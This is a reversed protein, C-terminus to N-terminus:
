KGSFAYDIEVKKITMNTSGTNTLRTGLAFTDKMSPNFDIRELSGQLQTIDTGASYSYTFQGNTIQSGDSGVFNMQFGNGSVTPETYVRIQKVTIKMSFLQTQTEYVGSQPTGTGTSNVLFRYLFPSSTGGSFSPALLSFYHKGYGVRVLNANPNQTVTSFYNDVLVNLPASYVFASNSGQRMLRYLGPPNEQDLGGFYYLSVYSSNGGVGEVSTWTLFNGNVATANASPSKNGPLTLIKNIGDTASAGFGDESFFLNNGLYTQLSTLSISPMTTETTINTDAGNWGYLVSDNAAALTVDDGIFSPQNNDVNSTAILLYNGDISVDIDQIQSDIPLITQLDSPSNTIGRISAVYNSVITGGGGITAITNANGIRILGQFKKLPHYGFGGSSLTGGLLGNSIITQAGGISSVPLTTVGSDQGIYFYQGNSIGATSPHQAIELSGGFSYTGAVSVRGIVSDVNAIISSTPFFQAPQVIYLNGSAIASTTSNGNGLLAIYEQTQGFNVGGGQGYFKKAAVVLDSFVSAVGGGSISPTTTINVPQELWTLNMPKSFPDYGWSTAFKAFGSNMDGNLIRTLRGGFNTIEITQTPNPNQQQQNNPM